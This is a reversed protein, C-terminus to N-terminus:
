RPLNVKARGHTRNCRNEHQRLARHERFVRECFQCKFTSSKSVLQEVTEPCFSQLHDEKSAVVVDCIDCVTATSQPSDLCPLNSERGRDPMLDAHLAQHKADVHEDLAKQTEFVRGCQGCTHQRGILRRKKEAHKSRVHSEVSRKERFSGSCFPCKFISQESAESRGGKSWPPTKLTKDFGVLESRRVLTISESLGLRRGAFSKGTQHRRLQYQPNEVDPAAFCCRHVIELDQRKAAQSCKWNDFQGGALTLYFVGCPALWVESVARFLHCLFSFHLAADETGLHPHNFVVVDGRLKTESSGQKRCDVANVRFLKEITVSSSRKSIIELQKLIFSGNKYKTLLEDRSDIGSAVLKVPRTSDCVSPRQMSLWKALDLSFSFDGDGLTLYCQFSELTRTPTTEM